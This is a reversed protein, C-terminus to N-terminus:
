MMTIAPAFYSGSVMITAAAMAMSLYFNGQFTTAITVLPIAGLAGFMCILAKTMYNKKKYKVSLIGGLMVSSFGFTM